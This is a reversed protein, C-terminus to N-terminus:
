MYGRSIAFGAGAIPQRPCAATSYEAGISVPWAPLDSRFRMKTGKASSSSTPPSSHNSVAQAEGLASAFGATNVNAATALEVGRGAGESVARGVATLTGDDVAVGLAVGDGGGVAVAISAVVGVAVEVAVGKGVSVATGLAVGGGGGVAVGSGEGM